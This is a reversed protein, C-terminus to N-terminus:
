VSSLGVFWGVMYLYEARSLNTSRSAYISPCSVGKVLTPTPSMTNALNVSSLSSTLDLLSQVIRM